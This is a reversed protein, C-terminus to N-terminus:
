MELNEDIRCREGFDWFSARFIRLFASTESSVDPLPGAPIAAAAKYTAAKIFSSFFVWLSTASTAPIVSTVIRFLYLSSVSFSPM